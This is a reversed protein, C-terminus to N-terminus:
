RSITDRAAKVTYFWAYFGTSNYETDEFSYFKIMCSPFLTKPFRYTVEGVIVGVVKAVHTWVAFSWTGAPEWISKVKVTM